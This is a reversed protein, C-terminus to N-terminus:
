LRTTLYQNMIVIQTNVFLLVRVTEFVSVLLLIYKWCLFCFVAVGTKKNWRYDGAGAGLVM